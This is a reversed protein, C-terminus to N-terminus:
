LLVIPACTSVAVAIPSQAPDLSVLPVTVVDAPTTRQFHTPESTTRSSISYLSEVDSGAAGDGLFAASTVAYDAIPELVGTRRNGHSGHDTTM